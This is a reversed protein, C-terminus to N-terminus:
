LAIRAAVCQNYGILAQSLALGFAGVLGAWQVEVHEWEQLRKAMSRQAVAGAPVTCSRAHSGWGGVHRAVGIAGACRSCPLSVRPRSLCM